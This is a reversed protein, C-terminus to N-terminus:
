IREQRDGSLGMLLVLIFRLDMWKRVGGTSGQEKLGVRHGVWSISVAQSSTSRWESKGWHSCVLFHLYM